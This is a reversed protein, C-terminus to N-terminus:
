RADHVQGLNRDYRECLVHKEERREATGDIGPAFTQDEVPLTLARDAPVDETQNPIARASCSTEPIDTRFPETVRTRTEGVGRRLIHLGDSGPEPVRTGPHHVGDVYLHVRLDGSLYGIRDIKKDPLGGCLSM